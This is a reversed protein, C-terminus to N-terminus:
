SLEAGYFCSPRLTPYLDTNLNLFGCFCFQFYKPRHTFGATPLPVCSIICVDNTYKLCQKKEEQIVDPKCPLCKPYDLKWRVFICTYLSVIVQALSTQRKLIWFGKIKWSFISSQKSDCFVKISVCFQVDDLHLRFLKDLWVALHAGLKRVEQKPARVSTILFYFLHLCFYCSINLPM